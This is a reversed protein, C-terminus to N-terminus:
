DRPARMASAYEEPSLVGFETRGTRLMLRVYPECLACGGCCAGRAKLGEIDLGDREALTKLEAFSIEHCVCRDVM